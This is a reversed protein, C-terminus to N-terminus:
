GPPPTIDGYRLKHVLRALGPGRLLFISALVLEFVIAFLEPMMQEWAESSLPGPARSYLFWRPLLYALDKLGGFLYWAGIVSIALGLWAQPEMASEFVQDRPRVLALRAIKDAFLWVLVLLLVIGALAPLTSWYGGDAGLFQNNRMAFLAAPLGILLGCAAWLAIARILMSLLTFADTRTM